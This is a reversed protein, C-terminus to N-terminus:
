ELIGKHLYFYRKFKKVLRILFYRDNEKDELTPYYNWRSVLSLEVSNSIILKSLEDNKQKEIWIIVNGEKWHLPVVFEIQNNIWLKIDDIKGYNSMLKDGVNERQGFNYGKLIVKEAVTSTSPDIKIISLSDKIQKQKKAFQYSKLILFGSILTIILISLFSLSVYFFAESLRHWHIKNKFTKFFVAINQSTNNGFRKINEYSTLLKTSNLDFDRKKDYYSTFYSIFEEFFIIGGKRYLETLTPLIVLFFLSLFILYVYYINLIDTLSNAFFHGLFISTFVYILIEEKALEFFFILKIKKQLLKFFMCVVAFTFAVGLYASLQRITLAFLLEKSPIQIEPILFDLLYVLTVYLFFAGSILWLLLLVFERLIKIYLNYNIM